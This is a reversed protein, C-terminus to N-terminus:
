FRQDASAVARAEGRQGKALGVLSTMAPAPPHLKRAPHREVARYVTSRAVSVTRRTREHQARRRPLAHGSPSGPPASLRPDSAASAAKQKPPRKSQRGKAKAVKMGERTRMRILDARSSRWWPWSTSCCGGGPRDPRACVRRPQTQGPPQDVGRLNQAAVPESPQRSSSADWFSLVPREELTSAALILATDVQEVPWASYAVVIDGAGGRLLPPDFTRTSVVSFAASPGLILPM